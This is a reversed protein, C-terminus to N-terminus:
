EFKFDLEFQLDLNRCRKFQDLSNLLGTKQENTM